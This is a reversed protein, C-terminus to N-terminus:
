LKESELRVKYFFQIWDPEKTIDEKLLNLRCKGVCRDLLAMVKVLPNESAISEEISQNDFEKFADYFDTQDFGKDAITMNSIKKYREKNDLQEFNDDVKISAKYQKFTCDYYNSKVIEKGDLLISARGIYDPSKSYTTTFYQIRGRLSECLYDDTLKKRIKSWKM